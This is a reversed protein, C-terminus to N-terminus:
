LVGGELRNRSHGLIAPFTRTQPVYHVPVTGLVPVPLIGELEWPTFVQRRTLGKFLAFGLWCLISLVVALVITISIKAEPSAPVSPGDAVVVNAMRQQDMASAIQAEEFQRSYLLYRSEAEKVNRALEDHDATVAGLQTLESRAERVQQSLTEARARLGELKSESQLLESQLTQRVPNVDTSIERAETSGVKDLAVQTQAIQQDLETVMRDDPRYKVLM